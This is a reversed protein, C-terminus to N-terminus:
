YNETSRTELLRQLPKEGWRWFMMPTLVTDLLTSSVLGGFIVVAVPHLVEKGPADASLLLPVLAFAAVLATMLVPTLRELSGRVIMAQGFREGEFACLNIYHSIKLIGNRTAIGTLTIFGVLAAISLPQGSIWLAIVSGVLALPINGMIILTLATSRYRSYLVLFIMSLSVLALLAILRSAQEQAQFQGELATFYGDPMPRAALESRISRIIGAMDGGDTNASVVIRRRANERSVQNPGDSDEVDALKSLPVHGDPTEILLNSLAHMGRGSEPLRAVLDFRRNGEIIQTIREGGVMQELGRLLAGPAVGYRAAEDYDIRIKTQPIRVQKEIQLDTVGPVQALRGRLDEALGRLTDLDDGYVKLAIQARVGSLLHDLRHSIPQGVNSVVPLSVLRSRIDNIVAERGRESTELDVDMETSHVGEAHEDLEARGTRRGVQTVEPVKMVLQEALAGIRNSEGLSTGPELLLSVTLTGENFPPLFSRPFLPIAAGAVLVVVLAAGLLSRSHGFSWNLLKADWRKLVKVLPSDGHGLQKMGPLLYYAMVPTLTVSVIMSALISVIYAVGLPTFLRGEIGPLVFLPVFVLVIIITAYVIASRVELTAKAIVEAVPRPHELARNLRLRRLVNEVGVVADDVLEGIAIALGGLTMTNISLGFYRFVLATALLSVPIATLSILTTRVNLLFLFLIVAVLIAGDRLAEEVNGVSREIFDAQRFLFQPADVGAPRAKALDAMAREVERTLTVSDASPQKQVSLIVAPKGNYGADGRKIAPAISVTAVQNLLVRQGNTVSVVINQLDEIRSTRGIQRILYERGQAELFGGSTNAGFDKLAADVRERPVGLAQLQDPRLEVRYQRVEGGIAIVQAIGPITLLRPRVVWDAYERVQMPSVKDPDAPLAILLIEGMISSIPGLQPVVDPPLQERVLNLRETIQQRNRYIDSGWEFEVYVISLGIGSVSRVRTVGPMGNMSSEIPFTVLQEVEEPAMGGAETMLTVTPKNLDPFVDVPMQRLTIAGYVVLLLSVALVILRQKLSTNVLFEFM